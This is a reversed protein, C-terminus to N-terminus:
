FEGVPSPQLHLPIELIINGLAYCLTSKHFNVGTWSQLLHCCTRVNHRMWSSVKTWLSQQSFRLGYLAIQKLCSIPTVETRQHVSRCKWSLLNLFHATRKQQVQMYCSMLWQVSKRSIKYESIKSFATFLLCKVHLHLHIVHSIDDISITNSISSTLV